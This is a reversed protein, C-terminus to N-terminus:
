RPNRRQHEGASTGSGSGRDRAWAPWGAQPPQGQLFGVLQDSDDLLWERLRQAADQNKANIRQESRSRILALVRRKLQRMSRRRPRLLEIPRSVRHAFSRKLDARFLTSRTGAGLHFVVDGYIGAILYHENVVNSRLVQGWALDQAWLIYAFRIGTDGAQGTTHLFTRFEPTFDSDPSYSPAYREFFDRRVLTCSPHPLAVDGNEVRLVGAVGSAVPMSDTLVEIWRDVIPFSDQDLTVIYDAGDALARAAMTDLYYAHERSGREETTATQCVVVNPAGAILAQARETTRHTTAYLTYPVHTHHAIRDLHLQLLGLDSDDDRVLYVVLIALHGVPPSNATM